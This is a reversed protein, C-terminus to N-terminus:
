TSLLLFPQRRSAAAGSSITAVESGQAEAPRDEQQALSATVIM